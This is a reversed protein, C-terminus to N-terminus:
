RAPAEGFDPGLIPRPIQAGYFWSTRAYCFADQWKAPHRECFNHPTLRHRGRRDELGFCLAAAARANNGCWYTLSLTVSSDDLEKFGLICSFSVGQTGRLPPPVCPTEARLGSLYERVGCTKSLKNIFFGPKRSIGPYFYPSTLTPGWKSGVKLLASLSRLHIVPRTKM